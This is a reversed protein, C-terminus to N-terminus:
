IRSSNLKLYPHDPDGSIRIAIEIHWEGTGDSAAAGITFARGNLPAVAGAGVSAQAAAVESKVAREALLAEVRAAENPMFARLALAPAVDPLIAASQSYVTIAPRLLRFLEEDLGPVLKLEDTSQFRRFRRMGTDKDAMGSPERWLIIETSLENARAEEVGIAKILATLTRIDAENIDIKGLEDQISTEILIGEFERIVPTGSLLAPNAGGDSLLSIVSLNLAADALASREVRRWENREIMAATRAQAIMSAAILSFLATATLVSVLAYGRERGCHKM